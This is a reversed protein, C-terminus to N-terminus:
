LIGKVANKVQEAKQNAAGAVINALNYYGIQEIAAALSELDRVSLDRRLHEEKSEQNTVHYCNFIFDRIASETYDSTLGVVKERDITNPIRTRLAAKESEEASKNLVQGASTLQKLTSLLKGVLNKTEEHGLVTQNLKETIYAIDEMLQSITLQTQKNVAILMLERRKNSSREDAGTIKKIGAYTGLGILVVVGIGTAMSSLGLIGGMGLTALGSTMGAASLGIVSGSLYIAAIPTGVAAAKAALKKLEAEVQENTTEESLLKFDMYIADRLLDITESSLKFLGEHAKFFPFDSTVVYEKDKDTKTTVSNLYMLDKCLSTMIARFETPTCLSSMTEVLRSTQELTDPSSLYGRIVLRSTSSFELRTMLRLIEALETADVKNDDHYAMNIIIKTYAIRVDESMDNLAVLVKEEQYETFDTSCISLVEALQEVNCDAVLSLATKSGNKLHLLVSKDDTFTVDKISTFEIFVSSSFHRKYYIGKATFLLGDKTNKLLTTDLIGIISSTKIKEQGDVSFNDVADNLVNKSIGPAVHITALNAAASIKSTAEIAKVLLSAGFRPTSVVSTIRDDSTSTADASETSQHLSLTSLNEQLYVTISAM